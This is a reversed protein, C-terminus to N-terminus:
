KSKGKTQREVEDIVALLEGFCPAENIPYIRQLNKGHARLNAETLFAVAVIHERDM